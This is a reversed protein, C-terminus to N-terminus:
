ILFLVLVHGLVPIALVLDLWWDIQNGSVIASGCVACPTEKCCAETHLFVALGRTPLWQLNVGSTFWAFQFACEIEAFWSEFWLRMIIM